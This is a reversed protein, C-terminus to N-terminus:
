RVARQARATDRIHQLNLIEAVEFRPPVAGEVPRLRIVPPFYGMRGHLETLLTAAIVSLSPLNVLLPTTQWETASLGVRELLELVQEHFGRAHDLQM